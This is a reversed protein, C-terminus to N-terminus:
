SAVQRLDCSCDNDSAANLCVRGLHPAHRCWECRPVDVDFGHSQPARGCTVAGEDGTLRDIRPLEFVTRSCCGTVSSDDAPMAHVVEGWARKDNELDAKAQEAARVLEAALIIAEDPSYHERKRRVHLLVGYEDSPEVEAVTRTEEREVAIM